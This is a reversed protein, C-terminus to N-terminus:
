MRDRERRVGDEILGDNLTTMVCYDFVKENVEMTMYVAHVRM